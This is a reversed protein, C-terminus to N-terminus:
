HQSSMTVVNHMHGTMLEVSHTALLFQISAGETCELLVDLLGRQWQVNLSLEPEDIIFVSPRDRASLINCVLLLLHREGSSLWSPELFANREAAIRIGRRLDYVVRKDVLLSNVNALVAELLDRLPQLATLRAELGDLYPQLISDLVAHSSAPSSRVLNALELDLPTTLGYRAYDRSQEGLTQIRAALSGIAIQQTPATTGGSGIVRRVVDTYVSNATAQGISSGALAQRRIWEGARDIAAALEMASRDERVRRSTSTYILGANFDLEDNRETTIADAVLQRDDSLFYLDLGIKDVASLFHTLESEGAAQNKPDFKASVEIAGSVEMSLTFSGDIRSNPRTAAIIHGDDLAVAFRRFPTAGLFSKHGRRHATSLLHFALRLITTKGLGNGGAL